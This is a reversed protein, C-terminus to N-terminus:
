FYQKRDKFTTNNLTICPKRLIIAEEQVGGSRDYCQKLMTLFDLYGLADVAKVNEPLNIKYKKLRDVTGPHM